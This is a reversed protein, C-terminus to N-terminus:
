FKGFMLSLIEEHFCILAKLRYINPLFAGDYVDSPTRFASVFLLPNSLRGLLVLALQRYRLWLLVRRNKCNFWLLVLLIQLTTHFWSVKFSCSGRQLKNSSKWIHAKLYFDSFNVSEYMESNRNSQNWFITLFKRTSDDFRFKSIYLHVFTQNEPIEIQLFYSWLM